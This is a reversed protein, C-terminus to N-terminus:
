FDRNSPQFNKTLFYSNSNKTLFEHPISRYNVIKPSFKLDRNKKKKPFLKSTPRSPTLADNKPSMAHNSQRFQGHNAKNLRIKSLRAQMPM